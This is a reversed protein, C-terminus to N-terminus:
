NSGNNESDKKNSECIMWHRYEHQCDGIAKIKYRELYKNLAQWEEANAIEKGKANKWGEAKWKPLREIGNRVYDNVGIVLIESPKRMRGLAMLLVKLEANNETTPELKDTKTLTAVNGNVTTELIYTFAGEKVRPGKITQYIYINVM